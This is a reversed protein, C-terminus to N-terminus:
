LRQIAAISCLLNLPGAYFIRKISKLNRMRRRFSIFDKDVLLKGILWELVHRWCLRWNSLVKISIFLKWYVSLWFFFKFMWFWDLVKCVDLIFNGKLRTQHFSSPFPNNQDALSPFYVKTQRQYIIHSKYKNLFLSRQFGYSGSKINTTVIM